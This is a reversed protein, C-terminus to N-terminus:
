NATSAVCGAAGAEWGHRAVPMANGLPDQRQALPVVRNTSKTSLFAAGRNFYRAGESELRRLSRILYTRM